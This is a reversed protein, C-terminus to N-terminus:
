KSKEILDTTIQLSNGLWLLRNKADLLMGFPIYNVGYGKYLKGEPDFAVGFNESLYPRLFQAVKEEGEYAVIVVKLRPGMQRSIEKLRKVSNVSAQNASHFFNVFCREAQAPTKDDLWSQVKLEPVRDGLAINQARTAALPLLLAALILLIAKKM